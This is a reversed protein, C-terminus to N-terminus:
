KKKLVLIDTGVDTNGFVGNPLRYAELLDCKQALKEKFANYKNGNNMFTNPIIYVLLGGSKLVDVGRMLFYMEFTFAGTADREGLPAYESVYDAYPPNTIVLDYFERVGALGVHRRGNFFLTEFSALNINYEPYLIKTIRYAIPEIEYATVKADLGKPIYKLFRGTGVSPELINSGNFKFGHKLALGWMRACIDEPTFFQTLISKDTSVKKEAGGGEYLQIFSLEDASYREREMGKQSVLARIENNIVVQSANKFKDMLFMEKQEVKPAIEEQEKKTNKLYWVKYEEFIMNIDEATANNVIKSIQQKIGREKVANDMWDDNAEIQEFVSDNFEEVTNPELVVENKIEVQESSNPKNYAERLPNFHASPSILDDIIDMIEADTLAFMNERGDNKVKDMRLSIDFSAIKKDGEYVDWSGQTTSQMNRKILFGKYQFEYNQQLKDFGTNPKLEKKEQETGYEEIMKNVPINEGTNKYPNVGFKEEYLKQYEQSAIEIAKKYKPNNDYVKFELPSYYVRAIQKYDRTEKDEVTKDSYVTANPYVGVFLYDPQKGEDKVAQEEEIPLLNSKANQIQEVMQEAHRLKEVIEDYKFDYGDPYGNQKIYNQKETLAQNYKNQWYSLYEDTQEHAERISVPKNITETEEIFEEQIKNVVEEKNDNSLSASELVGKTLFTFPYEKKRAYYGAPQYESEEDYKLTYAEYNSSLGYKELTNRLVEVDIFKVLDTSNGYKGVYTIDEEEKGEWKKKLDGFRIPEFYFDLEIKNTSKLEEISIYSWEAMEMDGNLIAYGFAQLQEEEMDKEVIYWDSGGYFYHLYVIKDDTKQNETDYTKPMRKIIDELREIVEWLEETGVIAMQQIKPMFAKVSEPIDELKLKGGKIGFFDKAQQKADARDVATGTWIRGDELTVMYGYEQRAEVFNYADKVTSDQYKKISKIIGGGSYMQEDYIRGGGLYKHYFESNDSKKSVREDFRDEMKKRSVKGGDAMKHKCGCSSVIESDKMVNGGYNYTKGTIFIEEPVEGGDAFAVGGGSQNIRSLIERNTLMEGEFERKETDSVANRTIVVEGGEMELPQGNSKNVAKIGGESHRKGVLVGGLNGSGHSFYDKVSKDDPNIEGGNKYSKKMKIDLKKEMKHLQVYYKPSEELHHLAITKATEVDNTHELEVKIGKLLEPLLQKIQMNHKKAIESITKPEKLQATIGGYAMIKNEQQLIQEIKREQRAIRNKLDYINTSYFVSRPFGRKVLEDVVYSSKLVELREANPKDQFRNRERDEWVQSDGMKWVIPTDEEKWKGEQINKRYVFGLDEIGGKVVPPFGQKIIDAKAAEYEAYQAELISLKLKQQALTKAATAIKPLSKMAKRDVYGLLIPVSESSVTKTGDPTLVDYQHVIDRGTDASIEAQKWDSVRKSVMEGEWNPQMTWEYAWKYGTLKNGNLGVLPPDFAIYEKPRFRSSASAVKSFETAGGDEFRIDPNNKDFTTNTGDALKIQNEYLAVYQDNFGGAVRRDFRTGKIIIGDYGQENLLERYKNIVENENKLMMGIGGINADLETRGAVRYIDTRFIEYSDGFTKSSDTIYIKPNKINLFLSYVTPEGKGWWAEESFNEAFSKKPTFWFGVKALTNSEGGKNRDFVYFDNKTGHYVVMPEGNSDVVKSVYKSLNELTVEDISPDKIKAMELREWDGFWAKFEPTRVLHWQAHNLNSPKGNPALYVLRGGREFKRQSIAKADPYLKLAIDIFEKGYFNIASRKEGESSNAQESAEILATEINDHFLKGWVDNRQIALKKAKEIAEKNEVSNNISGGNSFKQHNIGLENLLDDDQSYNGSKSKGNIAKYIFANLRALGWATRSNPKGGKITPRHSSSYAGMGRRVVAKAAALTIKKQPYVKNHEDVKKKITLLTKVDFKIAKASKTDKSSDEKNVSSGKIRESKPAPTQAITRGGDKYRIDPNTSDFTTNTGDALKIQNSEFCIYDGRDDIIGDNNEKILPIVKSINLSEGYGLNIPKKIKLFCSIIRAGFLEEYKQPTDKWIAQRMYVKAEDVYKSFFFGLQTNDDSTNSGKKEHLFTSFNKNTGHYVVMPEGNEDVVKSANAPDNEWDGFWAKFEPTRVLKYQEPTLNSPKGNPALLELKGGLGYKEPNHGWILLSTHKRTKRGKDDYLDGEVGSMRSIFRIQKKAWKWMTATWESVPTDKMRMVWRASERGSDIGAKKAQSATLGAVKGEDSNYFKELESKSMNVLSKWKQYTEKKQADLM